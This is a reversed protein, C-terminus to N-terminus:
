AYYLDSYHFNELLQCSFWAFLSNHDPRVLLHSPNYYVPLSGTARFFAKVTYLKNIYSYISKYIYRLKIPFRKVFLYLIPTTQLHESPIFEIFIFKLIQKRDYYLYFNTCLKLVFLIEINFVLSFTSRM